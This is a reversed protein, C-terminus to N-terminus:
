YRLNLRAGYTVPQGPAAIDFGPTFFNRTEDYDANLINRGWLALEWHGDESGVAVQANVLWYSDVGYAPGLLPPITEDRYSYDLGTRWYLSDNIPARYSAAGQYSINPLGLNQGARDVTVAMGAASSAAIDLDVFEKFEGKKYGLTQNITLGPAPNWVLELEGGYIKSAPANVIRGIPVAISFAVITAFEASQVQQNTYDYYFASANFQVAGDSTSTKFGAEYARLTEPDFPDVFAPNLTNYATFGGSKVGRSASAYILLNDTPTIDIGAKWTVEDLSQTRSELTGDDLGNAFNLDGLATAFTGLEILDRDETEYRLGANLSVIPTLQYDAQGFLGITEVEQGYPTFVALGNIGDEVFDSRYIEDLEETAYYVGAIWQFPGDHSSQLRAEHSMVEVDSEFFAGAAGLPSADYDNYERRDLTEYSGIYILDAGDFEYNVNLSGGFGENDKFPAQDLALGFSTAFEASPGWSTERRGHVASPGFSPPNFAQLGLGDSRDWYAHLNLRVDLRDTVDIDTIARLAYTEADGLKEGTERNIQWAGGQATAGSLRIRISDSVPGSVFGEAEVRGFRGGEVTLGASREDTPSASIVKIAGGTTNRGYLTGQPGRLVEVREVDFLLGQTMVPVPYAIDDVYIGVTPSNNTAYDRFGVGRITFVPQGSGFQSEIELNPSINELGNVNDVGREILDSGSFVDLAIGVDQPSQERRQATVFILDREDNTTAASRPEPQAFAASSLVTSAMLSSAVLKCCATAGFTSKKMIHERCTEWIRVKRVYRIRLVPLTIWKVQTM